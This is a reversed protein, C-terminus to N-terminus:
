LHSLVGPRLNWSPNPSTKTGIHELTGSPTTLKRESMIAAAPSLFEVM